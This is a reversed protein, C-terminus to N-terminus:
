PWRVASLAPRRRLGPSSRRRRPRCRRPSPTLWTCRGSM